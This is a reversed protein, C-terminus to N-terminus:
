NENLDLHEHYIHNHRRERNLEVTYLYYGVIKNDFAHMEKTFISM